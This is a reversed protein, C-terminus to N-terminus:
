EEVTFKQKYVEDALDCLEKYGWTGQDTLEEALLPPIANLGLYAGSIAGTMAATTDVDGGVEISVTIAKMFNDPFKLFSYLSWLVSPVVFPSINRWFGRQYKEPEQGYPAIKRVANEPSLSIWDQLNRIGLTVTDDISETHKGLTKLFSISDVKKEQLVIAVAMAIAVAGAHCRPDTHTIRGQDMAGRIILDPDDFFFLGIPAARMASGNGAHPPPMGSDEWSVGENLKKAAKDTALGKGVIRNEAFIAAIRMAYMEPLLEGNNDIYSQILERALQSDDTYQGFPYHGCGLMKEPTVNLYKEVYQRCNEPGHGEVPFGLADGLCQGILCGQYQILTPKM